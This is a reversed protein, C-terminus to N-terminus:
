SLSGKLGADTMAGNRKGPSPNFPRVSRRAQRQTSHDAARCGWPTSYAHLAGAGGSSLIRVAPPRELRTDAKVWSEGLAQAAGQHRDPAPTRRGCALAAGQGPKGVDPLKLASPPELM